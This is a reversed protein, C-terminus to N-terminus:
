FLGGVQLLGYGRGTDFSVAAGESAATKAGILYLAVGSVLAVGGGVVLGVGANRWTPGDLDAPDYAATSSLRGEKALGKQLVIAGVVTTVLGVSGTVIGAIRLRKGGGASAEPAPTERVVPAPTAAPAPAEDPPAPKAVQPAPAPTSSPMEVTAETREGARGSVKVTATTHGVAGLEFAIVGPEFWVVADDPLPLTSRDPMSLTADRPAGVIRVAVLHERARDRSASLTKTNDRVWPDDSALAESLHQQAVLYRGLALEVLGLQAALRPTHALHYAREFYGEARKEDGKRRMENGIRILAEPDEDAAPAARLASSISFVAALVLFSPASRM